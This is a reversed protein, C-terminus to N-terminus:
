HCKTALDLEATEYFTHCPLTRQLKLFDRLHSPDMLGATANNLADLLGAMAIPQRLLLM